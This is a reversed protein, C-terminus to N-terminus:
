QKTFCPTKSIDIYIDMSLEDKNTEFLLDEDTNIIYCPEKAIDVPTEINIDSYIEEIIVPEAYDPFDLSPVQSSFDQALLMTSITFTGLIITVIKKM